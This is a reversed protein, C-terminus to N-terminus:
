HAKSLQNKIYILSERIKPAKYKLFGRIKSSNTGNNLPRKAIQNFDKTLTSELLNRNLGFVEAILLSFQYRDITEPGTAVYVGELNLDIARSVYECLVNIDTPNSVQDYPIKKKEKLSLIQMLFNNGGQDYGFIVTPRLIIWHKLSEILKEAELKTKGYYNVPGTPSKEDYNNTLGSYVYDTSIYIMKRNNEKCWRVLNETVLVNSKWAEEPHTECYDVSTLAATHIIIYPNLENLIDKLGENTIDYRHTTTPSERRSIGYVEHKTKLFNFFNKGVFGASGTVLIRAM